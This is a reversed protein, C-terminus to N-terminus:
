TRRRVAARRKLRLPLPAKSAPESSTLMVRRLFDAIAKTQTKQRIDAEGVNQRM